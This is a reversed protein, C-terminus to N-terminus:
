DISKLVIFGDREEIEEITWSTSGGEFEFVLTKAELDDVNKLRQVLGSPTVSKNGM